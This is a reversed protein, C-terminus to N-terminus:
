GNDSHDTGGVAGLDFAVRDALSEAVNGESAGSLADRMRSLEVNTLSSLEGYLREPTLEADEILRAGGAAVIDASNKGQEGNGHPLPVYMAPLRSATVEAVTMAGSRCVAVDAAALAAAMDEIYPTGHYHEMESPPTNKSGYAHLIQWGDAILRERAGDVAENISRAGQSGGTVLLTRRDDTLSFLERGRCAANSDHAGGLDPRVPIGVVEGKMGSDAVANFGTGGLWIGLKNAMGALANTELVYFPTSTFRAALYASAAVYGGTGFVANVNNDRIVRMAQTVSKYLKGPVGLMKLPANRPIPVPGILHLAVDREPVIQSELGKPTGLALINAQHRDRLAQGVALAPEIHGATGGGALLVTLPSPDTDTSTDPSRNQRM